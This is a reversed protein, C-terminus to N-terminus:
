RRSRSDAGGAAPDPRPRRDVAPRHAARHISQRAPRRPPRDNSRRRRHEVTRRPPTPSRRGHRDGYHSLVIGGIPRALYGAAFAAFSAMLSVIPDGAPFVAAAIDRAFMEALTTFHDTKPDYQDTFEGNNWYNAPIAIELGAQAGAATPPIVTMETEPSGPRFSYVTGEPGDTSLVM